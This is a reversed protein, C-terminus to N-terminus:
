WSLYVQKMVVMFVVIKFVAKGFSVKRGNRNLKSVKEVHGDAVSM